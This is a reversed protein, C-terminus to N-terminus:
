HKKSGWFDSTANFSQDYFKRTVIEGHGDTFLMPIVTKHAAFLQTTSSQAVGQACKGYSDSSINTAPPRSCVVGYRVGCTYLWTKSMTFIRSVKSADDDGTRCIMDYKLHKTLGHHGNMGYSTSRDFTSAVTTCQWFKTSEASPTYRRSSSLGIATGGLQKYHYGYGSSSDSNWCVCPKYDNSDAVYQQVGNGIQKLTNLCSSQQGRARASQLAPLLVAALIAIIAIVVLLEILTFGKRSTTKHEM